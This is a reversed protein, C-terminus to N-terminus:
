DGLSKTEFKVEVNFKKNLGQKAGQLREGPQQQSLINKKKFLHKKDSTAAM